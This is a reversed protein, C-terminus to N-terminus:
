RRATRSHTSEAARGGATTGYASPTPTWSIVPLVAGPSATVTKSMGSAAPSATDIAARALPLCTITAPHLKPATSASRAPYEGRLWVEHTLRRCTLNM